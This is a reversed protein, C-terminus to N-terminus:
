ANLKKLVDILDEASFGKELVGLVKLGSVTALMAANELYKGEYGSMLVVPIDPSREGMARFLEVGDMQPMVIDSIICAPRTSSLIGLCERGNAARLAQFGAAVITREVFESIDPDDDVIVIKESVPNKEGDTNM